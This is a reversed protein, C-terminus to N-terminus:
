EFYLAFLKPSKEASRTFHIHIRITRGQLSDLSHNNWKVVASLADGDQSAIGQQFGPIPNFRDDTVAFRLNELSSANVKLNPTEALTVPTTWLSGHPHEESLGLAGWRDRPIRALGVEGWYNQAIIDPYKLDQFAVNRWRGHYIFTEDGVNLISNAQCLITPYDRDPFPTAPSDESHIFPRGKVVEEFHIGNHSLVLGLDCNIGGEGWHPVRQNWMGYLGVVVNGYSTAGVGLHVQTYLGGTGGHTGYGTGEIPEPTKFSPAVEPLWNEFDSSIWAYGQRGEPRDGEGRGRIHSNVLYYGNHRYLSALEAFDEGSVTYPKEEWHIGDPSTATKVIWNDLEGNPLRRKKGYVMKYREADSAEPDFIVSVGSCGVKPNPGLAILNNETSGNWEVQNLVPKEWHIGDESEAYCVPSIGIGGAEDRKHVAYYWMRFRDGEKLVTGYFHSAASDPAEPNLSPALVPSSRVEPKTLFLALNERLPFANRDVALFLLNESNPMATEPVQYLKEGLAEGSLQVGSFLSILFLLGMQLRRASPFFPGLLVLLLCSLGDYRKPGPLFRFFYRKM